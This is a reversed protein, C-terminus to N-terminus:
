IALLELREKAKEVLDLAGKETGYKVVLQQWFNKAEAFQKNIWFYEGLYYLARDHAKHKPNEAIKQLLTLGEKSVSDNKQDMLMLALKVQYYDRVARNQMAEVAQRMTAVADEPQGLHDLADARFVLFVAGLKTGKFEEYNKLSLSAVRGWKDKELSAKLDGAMDGSINLPEEVMRAFQMLEKHAAMNTQTAMYRYVAIGSGLVVVAALGNFVKVKNLLAWDVAKEIWVMIPSTSFDM